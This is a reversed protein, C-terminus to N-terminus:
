KEGDIELHVARIGVTLPRDDQLNPDVSRPTVGQGRPAIHVETVGPLWNRPGVNIRSFSGNPPLLNDALYNRNGTPEDSVLIQARQAQAFATGEFVLTATVLRPSFVCLTAERDRVWRFPVGGVEEIDYWGAGVHFSPTANQQAADDVKYISVQDDTSLADTHSVQSIVGQLAEEEAPALPSARPGGYTNYLAVYGINYFQLVDLLRSTIAPTIIDTGPPPVDLPSIFGWFPSCSGIVPSNYTRSLYGGMIPRHHATQYLMREGSPEVRRTAFPLEMLAYGDAPDALRSIGPPIQLPQTDRPHLPLEVLLLSLLAAFPLVARMPQKLRANLYSILWLAGWVALVAMCLRTLVLFRSVKGIAGVGPLDELLKFPMPIGTLTGGVQLQPGLALALTALALLLWFRIEKRRWSTIVGALSLSLAAYGLAVYDRQADALNHSGLLPHGHPIALLGSLDASHGLMHSEGALVELRPNGYDGILGLVLPLALTLGVAGVIAGSKLVHSLATRREYSIIFTYLLHALTFFLLYAAYYLSGYAALALFIGALLMPPLKGTRTARLWSEAYFPIWQASLVETQGKDLADLMYPTFAFVVGGLFSPLPRETLLMGLRFAGYGSLAFAALVVTNYAAPLGFLALPLLGILGHSLGLAHYYLDVGYPHYLMDTHFPNAARGLSEGIWWLDWLHQNRDAVLSNGTVQSTFHLLTPYTAALALALYGALALLHPTLLRNTKTPPRHEAMHPEHGPTVGNDTM